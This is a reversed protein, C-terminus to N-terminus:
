EKRILLQLQNNSTKKLIKKLQKAIFQVVCYIRHVEFYQIDFHQLQKIPIIRIFRSTCFSM